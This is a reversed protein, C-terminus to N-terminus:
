KPTEFLNKEVMFAAWTHQLDNVEIPLGKTQSTLLLIFFNGCKIAKVTKNGRLTVPASIQPWPFIRSSFTLYAVSWLKAAEDGRGDPGTISGHCGGQTFVKVSAIVASLCLTLSIIVRFSSGSSRWHCPSRGEPRGRLPKTWKEMLKITGAGEPALGSYQFNEAQKFVLFRSNAVLLSLCSSRIVRGSDFM